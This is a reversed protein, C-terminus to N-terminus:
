DSGPASVRRRFAYLGVGLLAAVAGGILSARSSSALLGLSLLLAAGPILVGGPLRFAGPRMGHRRRLIPVAAATSVYSVLRATVSVLALTVFSGSLALLLAAVGQVVIAVAPTRFRPHIRAMARPGFGDASLALAFRPGALTSSANTGLMSVVAGATLFLAAGPGAFRGAAQALPSSSSALDPLTGLAVVQVGLYLATVIVITGILAFPLDRRPDRYEGAAAPVNEFGAFAFLLLLAARGLGASGPMSIDLVAGWRVSWIGVLVFFLLPIAKAILLVATTRAGAKVAVVNIWVLAALPLTIMAIRGPGSAAAPWLFAAAQAMGNAISAVSAIRALWSMWGVECGVFLGFAERAYLYPGGPEDYYSAVEAFCLAILGVVLGAAVVALSSAAGLVAAAAAPLLFVGSGVVQNVSIAVIEWRSVARVLGPREAPAASDPVRTPPQHAVSM